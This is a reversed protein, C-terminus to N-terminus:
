KIRSNKQLEWLKAYTIFISFAQYLSEILGVSGVTYGKQSIYYDFFVPLMVHPLRWWVVAPHHADFRLKAEIDSWINTNTVMESLNRHTFHILPHPITYVDGSVLASEHLQGYWEKLSNKKFLRLMVEIKPWKKGLYYNVRTLAYASFKADSTITSKIKLALEKSFREDADIYLLWDSSAKQMAFNRSQAFNNMPYKIIRAGKKSAVKVTQDTSNDDIVLIEDPNILKVSNICEGILEEENRALIIVSLTNKKM